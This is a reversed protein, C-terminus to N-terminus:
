VRLLRKTINCMAAMGLINDRRKQWAKIAKGGDRLGACGGCKSLAVAEPDCPVIRGCRDCPLYKKGEPALLSDTWTDWLAVASGDSDLAAEIM